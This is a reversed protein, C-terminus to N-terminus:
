DVRYSNQLAVFVKEFEGPCDVNQGFWLGRRVKGSHGPPVHIKHTELLTEFNDKTSTGRVFIKYHKLAEIQQEVPLQKNKLATQRAIIDASVLAMWVNTGDKSKPKLSDGDVLCVWPVHLVNLERWYFPLSAKGDVSFIALNQRELPEEMKKQYWETLAAVETAGDALLVANYFLLNAVNPSRSWFDQHKTVLHRNESIDPSPSASAETGRAGRYLRRITEIRETPVLYPTHTILIVQPGHDRQIYEALYEELRRLVYSHLNAGPEDLLVVGMSPQNLLASLYVLEEMGAGSTSLPYDYPEGCRQLRMDLEVHPTSTDSGVLDIKAEVDVVMDNSLRKVLQQVDHFRRREDLAGTKLRFLYADLRSSSFLERTWVTSKYRGLPRERPNESIIVHDSFLRQWLDFIPWVDGRGPLRLKDWFPQLVVPIRNRAEPQAQTRIATPHKQSQLWGIIATWNWEMPPIEHSREDSTAIKMQKSFEPTWTKSWAMMLSPMSWDIVNLQPLQTTIGMLPDLIWYVKETDVTFTYFVSHKDSYRDYQLELQGRLMPTTLDEESFVRFLQDIIRDWLDYNSSVTTGFAADDPRMVSAIWFYRLLMREEASSFELGLRIVAPSEYPKTYERLMTKWPPIKATGIKTNFMDRMLGILRFVNTKGASNPGVLVTLPANLNDMQFQQFSLINTAYIDTIRM